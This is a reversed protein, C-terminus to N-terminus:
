EDTTSKQTQFLVYRFRALYIVMPTFMNYMLVTLFTGGYFVWNAIMLLLLHTFFAWLLSEMRLQAIFEDEVKEKSFVLFFFAVLLVTVVLENFVNESRAQGVFDDSFLRWDFSELSFSLWEPEIVWVNMLIGAVLVPLVLIWGWRKFRYPLLPITTM